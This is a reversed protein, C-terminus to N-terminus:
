HSLTYNVYFGRRDGYFRRVDIYARDLLNKVNLGIRHEFKSGGNRLRYSVGVDVVFYSPVTIERRGDNSRIFGDPDTIGGTLPDPYSKGVYRGGATFSLGKLSGNDISYKAAAGFNVKPVRPPPRGIADLDRGNQTTKADVYGIGGLLTLGNVVRWTYDFEVGNAEQVGGARVIEQGSPDIDTIRIGERRISYGGLTFQLREEFLGVKVGYDYGQAEENPLTNLASATQAQPTFSESRNAYLAIDPRIKYNVGIMPTVAHVDYKGSANALLDRLNFSVRDYRVGAIGILRGNLATAQHRLFGGVVDTRNKNKRTVNTFLGSTIDPVRYDPADVSENVIFYTPNNRISAPLQLTPDYRWYTSYDITFLTKNQVRGDFLKYDALLDAQFGGGDENIIGRGPNRGLVQRTIPNFQTASGSNFNWLHRTYWNSAVRASFVDSLKNEYTLNASTIERNNESKPGNQNFNALEYAIGVYRRTAPNSPIYVYPTTLNPTTKRSLWELEVLLNSKADFKHQVALSGTQTRIDSFPMDYQREYYAGSFLYATSGDSGIPGTANGEARFTDYDGVTVGIRQSPKNRPRKTIINILGGPTTQGYIAASPGKIVEIRDVNVRDVLGLRFFGNRLMTTAGYGRVNYGGGQDLGNLSSTYALDDGIELSAFDVLFESTIVNVNYPLDKIKVAVRSGTVSESAIYGTDDKSSVTFPSLQVVEDAASNSPASSQAFAAGPACALIAM